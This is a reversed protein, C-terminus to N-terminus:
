KKKEILKIMIDQMKKKLSDNKKKLLDWGKQASKVKAQYTLKTMQSPVVNNSM